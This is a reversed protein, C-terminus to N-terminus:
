SKFAFILSSLQMLKRGGLTSLAGREIAKTGFQFGGKVRSGFGKFKLGTKIM